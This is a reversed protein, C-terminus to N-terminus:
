FFLILKCRSEEDEFSYDDLSESMKWDPDTGDDVEMPQNVNIGNEHIDVDNIGNEHIDDDNNVNRGEIVDNNIGNEHLVNDVDMLEDQPM